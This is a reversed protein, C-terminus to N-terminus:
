KLRPLMMSALEAALVKGRENVHFFVHEDIYMGPPLSFLHRSVPTLRYDVMNETSAYLHGFKEFVVLPIFDPGYSGYLAKWARPAEPPRAPVRQFLQPASNFSVVRGKSDRVFDVTSDAHIRSRLIFTDGKVPVFVCPQSSINGRLQGDKVRLEAWYSQSEYDGVFDDLSDPIESGREPQKVGLKAELMLEVALAALRSTRGGVIDENALVVVGIKEEPLFVLQTSHGYVAGGHGVTKRGLMEGPVFALGFSGKEDDQPRYMQALTGPQLVRGGPADGDTALMALFRALDGATTFLNGAPITGLDFLPTDKRPFGGKGDAIRMHSPLCAVGKPLDKYRWASRKMGLPGLVRKAQYAEYGTNTILEVCHGALTPGINSYRTKLNPVTALANGRLSEVSKVIGPDNPDFYGGVSSERQLGSRHSLLLRLTVPPTGPFPNIPLVGPVYREVPTDLDLKGAEVQQMVAVANFLKSVSGCRFVSDQKAEGFGQEYVTHSGDVWAAAIGDIEWDRMEEKVAAEFRPIVASYDAATALATSMVFLLATEVKM